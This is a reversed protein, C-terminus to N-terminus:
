KELYKYTQMGAISGIIPGLIYMAGFSQIGFAVAPNLVGNSGLLAAITIGLLLSGGVVVGSMQSPTKGYIVSAIGFTFFFTGLLEAFGINLTNGIVLPSPAGIANFISVIYMAVAAGIFQAVIYYVADTTSIKKISWAGLTVAPNIHTGSIHGVSYVFLGLTLAALVPTPVPFKGLISLAVVLTLAFAGLCEAMYKKGDM